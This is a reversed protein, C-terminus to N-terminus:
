KILVDSLTSNNIILKLKKFMEKLQKTENEDKKFAILFYGGAYISNVLNFLNDDCHLPQPIKKNDGVIKWKSGCIMVQNSRTLFSTFYFGCSIDKFKLNNSEVLKFVPSAQNTNIGLEGNENYGAGYVNGLETLVMTHHIGLSVKIAKEPFDVKTFVMLNSDSRGLKGNDNRGATWVQGEMDIIVSHSYSFDADMVKNFILEFKYLLENPKGLEGSSNNGAAYLNRDKTIIACTNFRSILREIQNLPIHDTNAKVFTNTSSANGVGLQGHNNFGSGLLALERNNYINDINSDISNDDTDYEVLIMSHNWGCQAQLIKINKRKIHEIIPDTIDRLECSSGSNTPVGQEGTGNYGASFLRNQLTVKDQLLLFLFDGGCSISIVKYKSYKSPDIILHTSNSEKLIQYSTSEGVGFIIPDDNAYSSEKSSSSTSRKM